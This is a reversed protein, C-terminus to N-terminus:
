IRLFLRPSIVWKGYRPLEGGLLRYIFIDDFIQYNLYLIIIYIYICLSKMCYEWYIELNGISKEVDSTGKEPPENADPQIRALHESIEACCRQGPGVPVRFSGPHKGFTRAWSVAIRRVPISCSIVIFYEHTKELWCLNWQPNRCNKGKLSKKQHAWKM